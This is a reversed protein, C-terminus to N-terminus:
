IWGVKSPIQFRIWLEAYFPVFFMERKRVVKAYADFAKKEKGSDKCDTVNSTFLIHSMHLFMSEPSRPCLVRSELHFCSMTAKLMVKINM